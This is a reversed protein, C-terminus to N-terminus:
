HCGSHEADHETNHQQKTNSVRNATRATLVKMKAHDRAIETKISEFFADAVVKTKGAAKITPIWRTLLAPSTAYPYEQRYFAWGQGRKVDYAKESSTRVAEGDITEVILKRMRTYAMVDLCAIRFGAVRM